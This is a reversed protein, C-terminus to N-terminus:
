NFFSSERKWPFSSFHRKAVKQPNKFIGCDSIRFGFNFVTKGKSGKEKTVMAPRVGPKIETFSSLYVNM